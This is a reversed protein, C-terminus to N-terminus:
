KKSIRLTGFIATPTYSPSYLRVPPSHRASLHGSSRWPVSIGHLESELHVGLRGTENPTLTSSCLDHAFETESAGDLVGRPLCSCNWCLLNAFEVRFELVTNPCLFIFSYAFKQPPSCFRWLWTYIWYNPYFFWLVEDDLMSRFVICSGHSLFQTKQALLFSFKLLLWIMVLISNPSWTKQSSRHRYLKLSSTLLVCSAWNNTWNEVAM